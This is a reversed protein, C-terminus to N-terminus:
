NHTLIKLLLLPPFVSKKKSYPSESMEVSTQAGTLSKAPEPVVNIASKLKLASAQVTQRVRERQEELLQEGVQHYKKLLRSRLAREKEELKV